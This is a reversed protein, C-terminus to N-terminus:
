LQQWCWPLAAWSRGLGLGPRSRAGQAWGPEFNAALTSASCGCLFRPSSPAALWPLLMAKEKSKGQKKWPKEMSVGGSCLSAALASCPTVAGAAWATATVRPFSAPWQSLHGGQWGRPVTAVMLRARTALVPRAPPGPEKDPAACACPRRMRACLPSRSSGGWGEEDGCGPPKEEERGERGWIGPQEARNLSSEKSPAASVRPPPM